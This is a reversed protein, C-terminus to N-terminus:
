KQHTKWGRYRFRTQDAKKLGGASEPGKRVTAIVENLSTVLGRLFAPATPQAAVVELQEKLFVLSPLDRPGNFLSIFGGTLRAALESVKPNAHSANRSIFLRRTLHRSSPGPM